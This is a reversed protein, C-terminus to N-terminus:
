QHHSAASSKQIPPSQQVPPVDKRRVCVLESAKNVHVQLAEEKQLRGVVKCTSPTTYYGNGRRTMMLDAFNLSSLTKQYSLACNLCNYVMPGLVLGRKAEDIGM